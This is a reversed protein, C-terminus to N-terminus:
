LTEHKCVPVRGNSGCRQDMQLHSRTFQKGPSTLFRSEGSRLRGLLSLNYALASAGPRLITKLNDYVTM